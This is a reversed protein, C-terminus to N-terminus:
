RAAGNKQAHKDDYMLQDARRMVDLVAGDTEPDYVAMGRAIALREWRQNNRVRSEACSRDFLQLLEDRNDYDRDRLVVAFEDGGVRFVPSHDYVRCILGCSEKLYLDGKDHGMDDNITKLDNCDFMCIAFAPAQEPDHLQSQLDEVYIDFAGKNHVSTLADAYALDNLSSIYSKLHTILRRFASALIGVEDTGKHDPMCDYDGENVREAALTLERLPRTIHGSFQTTILIFIALLVISVGIIERIWSHWGADIESVPVTVNLRSGNELPLWVAEKEVGEFTYRVLTEDSILGAPVKPPTEMTTVDIHPHYIIIGEADNIFAYGNEYLTINDVQRAMASYDLEIGIVGIFRDNYYIPVNYSLVRVDLNDTIYPPLWVAEGTAKPVTYWVLQSTDETDYLTIDTVQHEVFGEGDVNVFWFGDVADSVSPDIRYYYSMIGNAGPVIKEFIGKARELHASLSADDLGDLDAEVYASAMDVSQEVSSFYSDLNRGASQCLLLLIQEASANGIDRIAIVGLFLAISMALVIACVSLLTTKTRISNM